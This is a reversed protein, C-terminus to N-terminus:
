LIRNWQAPKNALPHATTAFAAIIFALSVIGKVVFKTKKMSDMLTFVCFFDVVKKKRAM